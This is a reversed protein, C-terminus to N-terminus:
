RRRCLLYEKASYRQPVARWRASSASLVDSAGTQPSNWSLPVHDSSAFKVLIAFTVNKPLVVGGALTGDPQHVTSGQDAIDAQPNDWSLPVDSIISM